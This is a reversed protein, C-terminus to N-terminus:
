EATQDEQADVGYENLIEAMMKEIDTMEDQNKRFIEEADSNKKAMPM